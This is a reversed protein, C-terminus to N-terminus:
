RGEAARIRRMISPHSYSLFEVLPPPAVDGPNARALKQFSQVLARPNQTLELAYRDARVEARRSLAAQAPGGAVNCLSFFLMLLAIGRPAHPGPLGLPAVGRMACLMWAALGMSAADLAAQLAWGRFLDGHVAHSLEHALVAEVEAPTLERLLTDYLLVQKTPGIGAVMANIRSSEHGVRVEAVKEVRVGAREALARIMGLVQPDYVPRVQHFLPLLLVPYLVALLLSYAATILGAGAWWRRPSRRILAYLALWLLTSVVTDLALGLLHDGLWSLGSRRTLGYAREHVHGLYYAFPLEVAATVLGIGVAVWAVQRWWRDGGRAELRALLRAGAPHFCLWALAGLSALARLSAAVRAERAFRRGEEVLSAPFYNLADADLPRPELTAFLLLLILGMGVALLLTWFGKLPLTPERM